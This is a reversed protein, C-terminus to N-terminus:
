RLAQEPEQVDEAGRGVPLPSQYGEDQRQPWGERTRDCDRTIADNEEDVETQAAVDREQQQPNPRCDGNRPVQYGGKPYIAKPSLSEQEGARHREEYCKTKFAAEKGTVHVCGVFRTLLCSDEEDKKEDPKVGGEDVCRDPDIKAFDPRRM